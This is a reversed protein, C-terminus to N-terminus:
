AGRSVVLLALTVFIWLWAGIRLWWALTASKTNADARAKHYSHFIALPIFAVILLALMVFGAIGAFETPPASYGGAVGLWMFILFTAIGQKLM